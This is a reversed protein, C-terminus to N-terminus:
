MFDPKVDWGSPRKKRHHLDRAKELVEQVQHNPARVPPDDLEDEDESIWGYCPPRRRLLVSPHNLQSPTRKSSKNIQENVESCPEDPLADFHSSSGGVEVVQEDQAMLANGANAEEEIAEKEQEELITEIVLKYSAEEIFVWGADGEYVNLLNKITRRVVEKPFGLPVLADMAADIRKLGVKRTRGM